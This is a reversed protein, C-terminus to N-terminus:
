KLEELVKEVEENTLYNAAEFCSLMSIIAKRCKTDVIESTEEKKKEKEKDEKTAIKDVIFNHLKESSIQTMNRGFKDLIEKQWNNKKITEYIEKRDSSM